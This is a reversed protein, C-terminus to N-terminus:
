SVRSGSYWKKKCRCSNDENSTNVWSAEVKSIARSRSGTRCAASIGVPSLKAVFLLGKDPVRGRVFRIIVWSVSFGMSTARAQLRQQSTTCKMRSCWFEGAGTGDVGATLRSVAPTRACAPLLHRGVWREGVV